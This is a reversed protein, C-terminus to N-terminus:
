DLHGADLALHHAAWENRPIEEGVKFSFSVVGRYDPQSVCKYAIAYWRRGSRFAAGRAYLAFRGLELESAAYAVMAEPVLGSGTRRVQEMAELNCLQILREDAALLPLATRAERSRPETLVKASYTRSAQVFGDADLDPQTAGPVAPAPPSATKPIEVPPPARMVFEVTVFEEQALRPLRAPVLRGAFLLLLLHCLVAGAVLYWPLHGGPPAHTVTGSQPTAVQM